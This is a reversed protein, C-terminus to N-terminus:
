RSYYLLWRGLDMRRGVEASERLHKALLDGCGDIGEEMRLLAEATYAEAVRWKM